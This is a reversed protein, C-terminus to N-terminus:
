ADSNVVRVQTDNSVGDPPNTIVKDNVTLGTAVEVDRGLDRAISIPKLHVKNGSDVTAVSLGKADFIIASAPVTVVGKPKPLDLEVSAYGGPLLEGQSNDMVLQMLATGSDQDVAQSSAEVRAQYHKSPHEPVSISALTGVPVQPVDQQPVRIYVRLRSVDAVQFLAQGGNSGSSILDGIDTNRATVVGAFPSVIAAYDKQVELYKVNAEAARVQALSAEYASQNQQAEQMSVAKTQALKQWRETTSKALAANAKAVGLQAKAQMLQQDIDPTDISALQQGAAVKSGIDLQWSKLYGNVRAYIPAQRYAELRGPLQLQMQGAGASPNVVAVAAIAQADTWTKLADDEKARLVLGSSAVAAAVVFVGIGINRLTHSQSKSM